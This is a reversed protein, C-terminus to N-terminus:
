YEKLDHVWSALLQWLVSAAFYVERDTRCISKITQEPFNTKGFGVVYAVWKRLNDDAGRLLEGPDYAGRRALVWSIGDRQEPDCTKILDLLHRIQPDAIRLLARAAETKIELASQNFTNVLASASTSSPFQGLAWAAGARIEEHRNGDQLVGILLTESNASQIESAVIVTELQTELPVSLGTGRLNEEIFTWGESHDHAALAAAAELRVYIDENKDNVRAAL